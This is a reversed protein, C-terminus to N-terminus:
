TKPMVVIEFNELFEESHLMQEVIETRLLLEPGIPWIGDPRWKIVVRPEKAFAEMLVKPMKFRLADRYAEMKM